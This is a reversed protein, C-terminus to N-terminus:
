TIYKNFHKVDFTKITNNKKVNWSSKNSKVKEFSPVSTHIIEIRIKYAHYVSNILLVTKKFLYILFIYLLFVCSM